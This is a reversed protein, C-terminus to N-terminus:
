DLEFQDIAEELNDEEEIQKKIETKGKMKDEVRKLKERFWDQSHNTM